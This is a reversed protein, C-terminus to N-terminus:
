ACSRRRRSRRWTTRSGRSSTSSTPRSSTPRTSLIQGLKAFTPGLQELAVRLHQARELPRSPRASTSGSGRLLRGIQAARGLLGGEAPQEPPPEHVRGGTTNVIV